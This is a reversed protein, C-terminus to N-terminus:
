DVYPGVECEALSSLLSKSAAEKAAAVKLKRLSAQNLMLCLKIIGRILTMVTGEPVIKSPVHVDVVSAEQASKLAQSYSSSGQSSPEKMVIPLRISASSSSEEGCSESQPRADPM